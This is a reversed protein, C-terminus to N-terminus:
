DSLMWKILAWILAFVSSNFIAEGQELENDVASSTTLEEPQITKVVESNATLNQNVIANGCSVCFKAESQLQKGCKTCFIKKSDMTNGCKSNNM